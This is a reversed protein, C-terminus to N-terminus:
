NGNNKRRIIIRAYGVSLYGEVDDATYYPRSTKVRSYLDDLSKFLIAPGDNVKNGTQISGDPNHQLANYYRKTQLLSSGDKERKPALGLIDFQEPCYYKIFTIPVGMNGDYDSPIADTYPVDLADYNDYHLYEKNRIEKHSSFKINDSMSMLSIPSHRRGHELNTFWATGPVSIYKKGDEGVYLEKIKRKIKMTPENVETEWRAVSAISVGLFKAFEKQTLLMKNRLEKLTVFEEMHEKVM